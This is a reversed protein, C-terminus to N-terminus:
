DIFWWYHTLTQPKDVEGINGNDNYRLNNGCLEVVEDSLFGLYELAHIITKNTTKYKKALTTTNSDVWTGDVISDQIKKAVEIHKNM